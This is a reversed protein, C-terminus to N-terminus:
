FTGMAVRVINGSAICYYHYATGSTTADWSQGAACAARSSAPAAATTVLSGVTASNAAFSGNVELTSVPQRTGTAVTSGFGPGVGINGFANTYFVSQIPKGTGRRYVNANGNDTARSLIQFECNSEVGGSNALWFRVNTGIDHKCIRAPAGGVGASSEPEVHVATEGNPAIDTYVTQMAPHVGYVTYASTADINTAANSVENNGTNYFTGGADLRVSYAKINGTNEGRLNVNGRAMVNGSQVHVLNTAAGNASGYTNMKLDAVLGQTDIAGMGKALLLGDEGNTLQFHWDAITNYEFSATGGAERHAKLHAVCGASNIRSFANEESYGPGGDANTNEWDVCVAANSLSLNDLTFGLRGKIHIISRVGAMGHFDQSTLNCNRIGGTVGPGLANAGHVIVADGVGTYILTAGQCDLIPATVYPSATSSPIQIPTSYRYTGPPVLVLASEVPHGAAGGATRFAENVNAGIDGSVAVNGADAARTRVNNTYAVGQGYACSSLVGVFFYIIRKM